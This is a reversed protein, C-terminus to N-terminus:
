SLRLALVSLKICCGSSLFIAVSLAIPAIGIFEMGTSICPAALPNGVATPAELTDTDAIDRCNDLSFTGRLSILPLPNFVDVTRACAQFSSM